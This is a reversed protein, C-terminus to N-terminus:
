PARSVHLARENLDDIVNQLLRIREVHERNADAFAGDSQTYYDRANPAADASLADQAARVATAADCYGGLLRARSTGNLHVTPKTLTSM